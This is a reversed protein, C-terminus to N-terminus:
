SNAMLALLAVLATALNHVPVLLLIIVTHLALGIHIVIRNSCQTNRREFNQM